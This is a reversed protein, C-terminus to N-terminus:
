RKEQAHIINKQKNLERLEDDSLFREKVIRERKEDEFLARFEPDYYYTKNYLIIKYMHKNRESISKNIAEIAEDASIINRRPFDDAFIISM